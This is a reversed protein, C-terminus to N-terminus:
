AKGIIKSEAATHNCKFRQGSPSSSVRQFLAPHLFFYFSIKYIIPNFSDPCTSIQLASLCKQQCLSCFRTHQRCLTQSMKGQQPFFMLILSFHNRNKLFLGGCHGLQCTGLVRTVRNKRAKYSVDSILMLMTGKVFFLLIKANAKPNNYNLKTQKM